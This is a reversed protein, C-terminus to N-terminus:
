WTSWWVRAVGQRLILHPGQHLHGGEDDGSEEAGGREVLHRYAVSLKKFAETSGEARNKDPHVKKSLARYASKM